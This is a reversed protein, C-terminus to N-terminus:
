IVDINGRPRRWGDEISGRRTSLFMFLTLVGIRGLFMCAMIIGRGVGDLEATGGITLGVTGLASVVEFIATKPAMDQTLLLAASAGFILGLMVTAAAAAKYIAEHGILRGGFIVDRKNRIAAMVALFLVLITTTRAGGATGGPSGGVFMLSLMVLYTVPGTAALDASNFGATRFTVSQFWANHIRDDYDMGGLSRNWEFALYTVFGFLLLAATALFVARVQLSLESRRRFLKPLAVVAAPSLGGAIILLAITHLVAPEGSFAMLSDSDLAFGANCFASVSTFIAKWLADGGSLGGEIYSSFLVVAGLAEIALTIAIVQYTAAFLSSRDETNAVRAMVGEHKLSVRQGFLRLAATSFTMIGLGGIQIILLLFGQGLPSFDKGTDVVSLGTVCAASVATFASDFIDLGVGTASSAPLGLLVTGVLCLIAFTVVILREPHNVIPAWVGGAEDDAHRGPLILALGILMTAVANVVSTPPNSPLLDTQLRWYLWLGTLIPGMALMFVRLRDTRWAGAAWRAILPLPMALAVGLAIGGALSEDVRQGILSSLGWVAIAAITAGRAAL